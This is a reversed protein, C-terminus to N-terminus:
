FSVSRVNLTIGDPLASLVGTRRDVSHGEYKVCELDLTNWIWIKDKCEEYIERCTRLFSLRLEEFGHQGCTLIRYRPGDDSPKKFTYLATRPPLFIKTSKSAVELPLIQLLSGAMARETEM